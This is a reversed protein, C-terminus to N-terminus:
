PSQCVICITSSVEKLTMGSGSEDKCVIDDPSTKMRKKIFRLLHKQNMCSSSHVHTDVQSCNVAVHKQMCAFFRKKRKKFNKDCKWRKKNQTKLIFFRQLNANEALWYDAKM